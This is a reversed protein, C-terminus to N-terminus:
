KYDGSMEKANYILFQRDAMALMTKFFVTEYREISGRLTIPEGDVRWSWRIWMTRHKRRIQIITRRGGVLLAYLWGSTKVKFFLGPPLKPINNKDIM